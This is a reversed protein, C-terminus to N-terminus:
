SNVHNKSPSKVRVGLSYSISITPSIFCLIWYFAMSFAFIPLQLELPGLPRMIKLPVVLSQDLLRDWTPLITWKTYIGCLFNYGILYWTFILIFGTIFYGLQKRHYAKRTYKRYLLLFGTKFVGTAYRESMSWCVCHLGTRIFWDKAYHRSWGWDLFFFRHVHMIFILKILRQYKLNIM